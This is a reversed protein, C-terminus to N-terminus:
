EEDRLRAPPRDKLIQAIKAGLTDLDFPKAIWGEAHLNAAKRAIRRDASVVLIPIHATAPNVRLLHGIESGDMGPLMIDLLIIDPPNLELFRGLMRANIAVDVVYGQETLYGVVLDSIYFDDEVVLVRRQGQGGV